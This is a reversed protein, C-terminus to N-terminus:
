SNPSWFMVKTLQDLLIWPRNGETNFGMSVYKIDLLPAAPPSVAWFGFRCFPPLPLIHPSPSTFGPSGTRSFAFDCTLAVVNALHVPTHWAAAAAAAAAPCLSECVIAIPHVDGFCLRRTGHRDREVRRRHSPSWPAAPASRARAFFFFGVFSLRLPHSPVFLSGPPLQLFHTRTTPSPLPLSPFPPSPLPPDLSPCAPAVRRERVETCILRHVDVDSAYLGRQTEVLLQSESLWYPCASHKMRRQRSFSLTHSHMHSYTRAHTLASDDFFCQLQPPFFSHSHNARCLM